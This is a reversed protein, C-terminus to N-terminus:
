ADHEKIHQHISIALKILYYFVIFVMITMFFSAIINLDM